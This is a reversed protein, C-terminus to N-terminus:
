LLTKAMMVRLQGDSSRLVMSWFMEELLSLDGLCRWSVREFVEEAIM